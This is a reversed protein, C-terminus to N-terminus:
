PPHLHYVIPKIFGKRGSLDCLNKAQNLLVFELLPKRNLVDEFIYKSFQLLLLFLAIVWFIEVLYDSQWVRAWEIKM